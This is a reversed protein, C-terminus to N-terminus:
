GEKEIRMLNTRLVPGFDHKGPDVFTCLALDEEDLELCGLGQAMDTDGVLLSRLLQTPLIDLPIVREFAGVPVIARPSGNKLTTFSFKRGREKPLSAFTVNLASYKDKSPSIWGFYERAGGEQLVTVQNHYRGLYGARDKAHHGNLMSGSIIRAPVDARLEGDTLEELCAGVRTRVLRPRVAVSGALSIVQSLNLRGTTFLAGIALVSQYNLHWVTKRPGVPDLFHIHTGVLGAPHPGEFEVVSVAGADTAPIGYFPSKCVFVKGQTLKTLVTLGNRFDDNREQIVLDPRPALPATDIATVFISHPQSHPDPIKSYPRTRLTTWLGSALLNDKVQAATLASLEGPAYASFTKEEAGDLEIVVSQLVRKEGRHIAKVTGCGPATFAVDPYTKDTFLVDGLRVRDGEKVQMTPKLGVYDKGLLAVSRVARADDHIAQEPEGTVPLDLGKKIKILM